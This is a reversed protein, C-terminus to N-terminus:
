FLLICLFHVLVTHTVDSTKGSAKFSTCEWRRIDNIGRETFPASLSICCWRVLSHDQKLASFPVLISLQIGRYIWFCSQDIWHKACVFFFRKPHLHNWFHKPWVMCTVLLLAQLAIWIMQVEEAKSCLWHSWGVKCISRSVSAANVNTNVAWCRHSRSPPWEWDEKQIRQLRLEWWKFSIKQQSM